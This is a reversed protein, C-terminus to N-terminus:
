SSSKQHSQQVVRNHQQQSWFFTIKQLTRYQQKFTYAFSWVGSYLGSFARTLHAQLFNTALALSNIRPSAPEFLSCCAFCSFPFFFGVIADKATTQQGTSLLDLLVTLHQQQQPYTYSLSYNKDLKLLTILTFSHFLTLGTLWIGERVGNGRFTLSMASLAVVCFWHPNQCFM